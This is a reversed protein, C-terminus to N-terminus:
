PTHPKPQPTPQSFVGLGGGWPSPNPRPGLPPLKFGPTPRALSGIHRAGIRKTPWTRNAKKLLSGLWAGVWAGGYGVSVDSVPPPARVGRTLEHGWGLGWWVEVTKARNSEM